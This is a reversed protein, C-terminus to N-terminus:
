GKDMTFPLKNVTTWEKVHLNANKFISLLNLLWSTVRKNLLIRKKKENEM